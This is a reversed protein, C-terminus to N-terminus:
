RLMRLVHSNGHDDKIVLVYVNQGAPKGSQRLLSSIPVAKGAFMPSECKYIIRGRLDTIEFASIALKDFKIVDGKVSFGPGKASTRSLAIPRAKAKTPLPPFEGPATWHYKTRYTKRENFLDLYQSRTSSDMESWGCGEGYGNSWAVNGQYNEVGFRLSGNALSSLDWWNNNWLQNRYNPFIGYKWSGEDYACDQYVGDAM